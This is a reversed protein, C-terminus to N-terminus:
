GREEQVLMRDIAARLDGTEVQARLREKDRARFSAEARDVEVGDVGVSKLAMRAMKVASEMVERVIGEVPAGKLTIFSRRDFARVFV